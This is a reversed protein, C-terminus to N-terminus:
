LILLLADIGSLLLLWTPHLISAECYILCQDDFSQNQIQAFITSQHTNNLIVDDSLIKFIIKPIM